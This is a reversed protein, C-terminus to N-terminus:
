DYYYDAFDKDSSSFLENISNRILDNQNALKTTHLYNKKSVSSKQINEEFRPINWSFFQLTTKKCVGDICQLGAACEGMSRFWHTGCTELPGKFHFLLNIKWFYNINIYHLNSKFM